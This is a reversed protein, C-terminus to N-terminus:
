AFTLHRGEKACEGLFMNMITQYPVGTRRSEEKFYDITTVDINMTVPKKILKMYPNRKGESFDYEDRMAAGGISDM